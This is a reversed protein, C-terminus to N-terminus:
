FYLNMRLASLPNSIHNELWFLNDELYTSTADAATISRSFSAPMMQNHRSKQLSKKFTIANRDRQM